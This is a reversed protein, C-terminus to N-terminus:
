GLGLRGLRFVKSVLNLSLSNGLKILEATM